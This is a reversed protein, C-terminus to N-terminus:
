VQAAVQRLMKFIVSQHYLLINIYYFDIRNETFLDRSVLACVYFHSLQKTKGLLLFTHSATGLFFLCVCSTPQYM